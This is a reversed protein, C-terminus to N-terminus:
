SLLYEKFRHLANIVTYNGIAGIDAKAGGVDYKPIVRDINNKLGDWTLHEEELVHREIARIYSYVTSQHGSPTEVAYGQKILYAEYATEVAGRHQSVSRAAGRGMPANRLAEVDQQVKKFQATSRLKREAIAQEVEDKLDGEAQMMGLMFSDPIGFNKVEGNAFRVSIGINDGNPTKAIVEGVGFINHKVQQM